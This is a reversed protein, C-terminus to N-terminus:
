GVYGEKFAGVTAEHGCACCVCFSDDDWSQDSGKDNYIDEGEDTFQIMTRVEIRLPGYSGCEPCQIDELCETNV